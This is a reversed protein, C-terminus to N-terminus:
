YAPVLSSAQEPRCTLHATLTRQAWHEQEFSSGTGTTRTQRRRAVRRAYVAVPFMVAAAPWAGRVAHSRAPEHRQIWSMFRRRRVRVPRFTRVYSSVVTLIERSYSSNFQLRKLTHSLSSLLEALSCPSADTPYELECVSSGRVDPVPILDGSCFAPLVYLTIRHTAAQSWTTSPATSEDDTLRPVSCSM